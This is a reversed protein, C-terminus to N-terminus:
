SSDFVQPKFIGRYVFKTSRWLAIMEKKMKRLCGKKNLFEFRLAVRQAETKLNEKTSHPTRLVSCPVFLIQFGKGM